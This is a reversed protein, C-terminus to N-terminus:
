HSVVVSEDRLEHLHCLRQMSIVDTFIYALLLSGNLPVAPTLLGKFVQPFETCHCRDKCTGIKSLWELKMSICTASTQPSDEILNSLIGSFCHYGIGTSAQVPGFGVVWCVLQSNRVRLHGTSSFEVLVKYPDVKSRYVLLLGSVYTSAVAM